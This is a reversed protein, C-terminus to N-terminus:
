EHRLAVMPDVRAARWAPAASALGATVTLVAVAAAVTPLDTGSVGFLLAALLRAVGFVAAVGSAAGIGVVILSERLVTGLVRTRSAGLAMRIGFEATRQV